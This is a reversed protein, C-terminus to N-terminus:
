KCRTSFVRRPRQQHSSRSGSFHFNLMLGDHENPAAAPMTTPRAVECSGYDNTAPSVSLAESATANAGTPAMTTTLLKLNTSHPLARSARMLTLLHPRVSPELRANSTTDVTANLVRGRQATANSDSNGGGSHGCHKGALRDVLRDPGSCGYRPTTSAQMATRRYRTM